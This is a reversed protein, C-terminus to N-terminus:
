RGQQWRALKRMGTLQLVANRIGDVDDAAHMYGARDNNSGERGPHPLTVFWLREDYSPGSDGIYAYTICADAPLGLLTNLEAIQDRVLSRLRDAETTATTTM